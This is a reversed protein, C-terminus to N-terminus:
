LWRRSSELLNRALSKPARADTSQFFKVASPSEFDNVLEVMHEHLCLEDHKMEDDDLEFARKFRDGFDCDSADANVEGM